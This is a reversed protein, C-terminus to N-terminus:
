KKVVFFLRDADEEKQNFDFDTFTKVEKFGAENLLRKYDDEEYTRQYHSEDFRRYSGNNNQIFFTMEHYVSLPENGQIAEWSLFVNETEDIYSQNNFLTNMKNVTHVDFLFVGDDTLHQYVKNFTEKVEKSSSLYNLSDCFITIINFKQNLKFSTMDGELWRVESSKQNAITLMDVSLDMGIVNGLPVLMHTLNGTGCGLDLIDNSERKSFTQVINFWADYPQDQTLQDYVLSMDEYQSM